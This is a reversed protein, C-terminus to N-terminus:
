KSMYAYCCRDKHNNMIETNRTVHSYDKQEATGIHWGINQRVAVAIILEICERNQITCIKM